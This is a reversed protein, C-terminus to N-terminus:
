RGDVEVRDQQCPEFLGAFELQGDRVRGYNLWDGKFLQHDWPGGSLHTSPGGTCAPLFRVREIGEKVGPGTLIPTRRLAEVVLSAMDYALGPLANPWSGPSEGHRAVFREHFAQVRPNDPCWQDIGVWGEFHEFGWIYQMFATTMIRPPDWDIAELAARVQGSLVLGGYGLWVLADPQTDRLRAFAAQLQETSTSSTVSEIAGIGLGFRRAEQRFHSFYDEGIPSWPMVLAVRGHGQRRLWNVMLTPEAGTDGNGIRFCYPGNFRDTGCMSILPVECTNAHEVLARASDTYNAGVVALCGADVLRHYAAVGAQATSQPLGADDEYVFEYGRDLLGQEVGEDFAMRIERRWARWETGLWGIKIPARNLWFTTTTSEAM